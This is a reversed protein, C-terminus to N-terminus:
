FIQWKYNLKSFIHRCEGFFMKTGKQQMVTTDTGFLYGFSAGKADFSPTLSAMHVDVYRYGTSPGLIM